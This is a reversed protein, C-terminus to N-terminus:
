HLKGLEELHYKIGDDKLLEEVSDLLWKLLAEHLEPDTSKKDIVVHELYRNAADKNVTAIDEVIQADDTNLKAGKSM